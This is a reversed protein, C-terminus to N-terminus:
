QDAAEDYLAELVEHTVSGVENYTVEGRRNRVITQPM